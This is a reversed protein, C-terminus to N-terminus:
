LEISEGPKLVAVKNAPECLAKFANPDQRIPPFTDYHMPVTIKAGIVRAARAADAPGMTFFDGIPLLAADLKEDALLVMDGYFATDGAFYIKKGGAEIVFGCALAGPLGSGHIAQVLKVRGFPLPMWGGLNGLCCKVGAETLMGRLEAVGCVTAGTRRAIDLTDGIHDGHCHSVLIYDAPVEGASAAALGNGTLYPDTLIHSSGDFLDFCAHGLFTLKM